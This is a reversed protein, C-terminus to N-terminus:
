GLILIGLKTIADFSLVDLLAELGSQTLPKAFSERARDQAAKFRLRM